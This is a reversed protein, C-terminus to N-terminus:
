EFMVKDSLKGPSGISSVAREGEEQCDRDGRGSKNQEMANLWWSMDERYISMMYKTEKKDSSPSLNKDKTLVQGVVYFTNM